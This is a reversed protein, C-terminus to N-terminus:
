SSGSVTHFTEENVAYSHVNAHKNLYKFINECLQHTSMHEVNIYLINLPTLVNYMHCCINYFYKNSLTAPKHDFLIKFINPQPFLHSISDFLLIKNLPAIRVCKWTNYFCLFSARLHQIFEETIGEEEPRGRAKIREMLTKVSCDLLIITERLDTKEYCMLLSVFEIYQIRGQWFLNLPFVFTPAILHRDAISLWDTISNYYNPAYKEKNAERLKFPTVFFHQFLSLKFPLNEQLAKYLEHLVNVSFCTTWFDLPEEYITKINYKEKIYKILTTKGIGVCGDIYLVTERYKLYQPAM